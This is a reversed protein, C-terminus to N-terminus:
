LDAPLFAEQSFMAISNLAWVFVNLRDNGRRPDHKLREPPQLAGIATDLFQLISEFYLVWSDHVKKYKKPYWSAPKLALVKGQTDRLFSSYRNLAEKNSEILRTTDVTQEPVRHTHHATKRIGFGVVTSDLLFEAPALDRDEKLAQDCIAVLDKTNNLMKTFAEECQQRLTQLTRSFDELEAEQTSTLKRSFFGV